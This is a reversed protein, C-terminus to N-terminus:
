GGPGDATLFAELGQLEDVMADLQNHMLYRLSAMGELEGKENVVPLHRIKNQKMITLAEQISMDTGATVMATTMVDAAKTKTADRGEFVIKKVVDRETFIGRLKNGSTIAVAGAGTDVMKRICDMVTAADGMTVPPKRALRILDAM